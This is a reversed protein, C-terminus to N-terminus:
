MSYFHWHLCLKQGSSNVFLCLCCSPVCVGRALAIFERRVWQGWSGSIQGYNPPKNRRPMTPLTHMMLVFRVALDTSRWALGDWTCDAPSLSESCWSHWFAKEMKGDCGPWSQEEQCHTLDFAPKVAWSRHAGWCGSRAGYPAYILFFVCLWEWSSGM